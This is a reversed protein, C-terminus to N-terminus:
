RLATDRTAPVIIGRSERRQEIREPLDHREISKRAGREVAQEGRGLRACEIPERMSCPIGPMTNIFRAPRAAHVANCRRQGVDVRDRPIRDRCCHRHRSCRRASTRQRRRRPAVSEVRCADASFPSAARARSQATANPERDVLDVDVAGSRSRRSTITSASSPVPALPSTRGPNAVRSRASRRPAAAPARARYETPGRHLSVPRTSPQVTRASTVTVNMPM